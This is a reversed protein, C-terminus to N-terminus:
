VRGDRCVAEYLAQTSAVMREVGFRGRIREAAARGLRERLAPDGALRMLGRTVAEVDEEPVLIGTTGDVVLERNGGVDTAIVPLGCAMAELIANSCGEREKSFHVYTDFSGLADGVERVFGPMEVRGDLGLDSALRALRERDPGDGMLVVKLEPIAAAAAAAARLVEQQGKHAVFTGVHGVAFTGPRWGRTARRADRDGPPAFRDTDVGNPIVEIKGPPLGGQEVLFRRIAEANVVIRATRAALIRELAHHHFRKWSNVSRESSISRVGPAGWAAVRARWNESFLFSHVIDPRRARLLRALRVLQLPGARSSRELTVVEIGADKLRQFYAGGHRSRASAPVLAVVIPEFRTRDLHTALEIIQREAGGGEGLYGSVLVVRIM